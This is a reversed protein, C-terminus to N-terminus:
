RDKHPREPKHLFVCPILALLIIGVYILATFWLWGPRTAFLWGVNFGEADTRGFFCFFLLMCGITWCVLYATTPSISDPIRM